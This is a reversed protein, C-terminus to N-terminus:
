AGWNVGSLVAVASARRRQWNIYREARIAISNTQFMSVMTTPTPTASNNTPDNLMQLSAERSADVAVQGDDALFIDSANVLIVLSGNSDTPIYESVIVPMGWFTGGNMTIGAFEAQGLPNVMLSLALATTASMIWVGSQPANNAAIFQQFLARIDARVDDATNGSSPIATIGNTISAPSVNTVAAKAPNIFDIDLRARLADALADRVLGEAAPNSFRALEETIVAINAVKAWRLNTM